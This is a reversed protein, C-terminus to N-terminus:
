VPKTTNSKPYLLSSQPTSQSLSSFDTHHPTKQKKPRKPTNEPTQGARPPTHSFEEQNPTKQPKVQHTDRLSDRLSPKKEKIWFM